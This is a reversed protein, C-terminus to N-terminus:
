EVSRVWSIWETVDYVGDQLDGQYNSDHGQLQYVRTIGEHTFLKDFDDAKFGGAEVKIAKGNADNYVIETREKNSNHWVIALKSEPETFECGLDGAIARGAELAQSISDYSETYSFEVNKVNLRVEYASHDPDLEIHVYM